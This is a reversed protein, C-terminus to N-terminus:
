ATDFSRSETWRFFSDLMSICAVNIGGSAEYLAQFYLINLGFSHHGLPTMSYCCDYAEHGAPKLCSVM